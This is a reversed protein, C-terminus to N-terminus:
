APWRIPADNPRESSEQAAAPLPLRVTITTGLGKGDSHASASGGHLTVLHSVIALGLGQGGHERRPSADAQSFRGFVFPVFQTAIGEGNDSVAIEVDRGVRRCTLAIQGWRGTFKVANALVHWLIQQVRQPDAFMTRADPEVVMDVRIDKAAAAPRIADTAAELVASADCWIPHVRLEGTAIRSVDLLDDVIRTQTKVNRGIVDLARAAQEGSLKASQLLRVWGAIATLPTRLEHSLTMLFQDKTRNAQELEVSLRRFREENALLEEERRKRDTVDLATGLVRAPEGRSDFFGHGNAMVWREHGDRSVPRCEVHFTDAGASHLSRQFCDHVRPRDDPHIAALFADYRDPADSGVNFLAKCRVDWSLSGTAPTYDWTGIGTSEVALRFRHAAEQATEHRRTKEIAVAAQDALASLLWAEEDVDADPHASLAVALSGTVIGGTMLPVGLFRTRPGDFVEHLRHILADPPAARLQESVAEDIGRSARIVLQGRPDALMLAVREVSLLDAAHDVTLRLVDEPSDAYSLARSVETLKRIETLRGSPRFADTM